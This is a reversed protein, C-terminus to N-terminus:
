EKELPMYVHTKDNVFTGNIIAGEDVYVVDVSQLNAIYYHSDKPYLRNGFTKNRNKILKEESTKVTIANTEYFIPATAHQLETLTFRHIGDDSAAEVILGPLGCLKWPGATTPIDEAYRVTWKRGHLQCVATKCLYGAVTLTSDNLTWKINKRQEQTEYISPPIADRVTVQGEPYNTWVQPMFCFSESRLLPLEEESLFDYGEMYERKSLQLFDAASQKKGEAWEREKRFKRYPFSRTCHRGVLLCLKMHDTVAKGDADQTQCEYDYTAVLNATDICEQHIKAALMEAMIDDLGDNQAQAAITLALATMTALIKKM